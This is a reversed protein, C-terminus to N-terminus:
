SFTKLFFNQRVFCYKSGIVSKSKWISLGGYFCMFGVRNRFRNNDVEVGIDDEIHENSNNTIKKCNVNNNSNKEKNLFRRGTVINFKNKDAGVGDGGSISCDAAIDVHGGVKRADKEAKLKLKEEKKKREVSENKKNDAKEALM